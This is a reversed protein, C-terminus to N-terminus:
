WGCLLKRLAEFEVKKSKSKTFIDAPNVKGDIKEIATREVVTELFHNEDAQCIGRSVTGHESLTGALNYGVM